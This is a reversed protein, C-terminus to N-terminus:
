KPTLSIITPYSNPFTIFCSVTLFVSLLPLFAGADVRGVVVARNILKSILPCQLGYANNIIHGVDCSKCLRAIDDVLDPQRPAFCSTTTLVCLVDMGHLELLERVRAVDTQMQGDVMINDVVLPSLGATIISKFCSKQDIRSWIVYKAAPRGIKLTLICMTISMGTAFPLLLCHVPKKFGSMELAHAAMSTTLKYIISSGAAKPQVETINGSRGIGHSLSFHRESVMRSYIRGEREGVGCNSEFNNSDMVSLQQIVFEIVPDSFGKAPLRRDRLLLELQKQRTRINQTGQKAYTAKVLQSTLNEFDEM